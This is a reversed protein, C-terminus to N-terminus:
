FCREKKENDGGIFELWEWGDPPPIDKEDNTVPFYQVGMENLEHLSFSGSEGDPCVPSQVFGSMVGNKAPGKIVFWEWGPMENSVFVGKIKKKIGDKIAVRVKTKEM